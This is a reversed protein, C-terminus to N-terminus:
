PGSDVIFVDNFFTKAILGCPDANDNAKLTTKNDLAFQGDKGLNFNIGM